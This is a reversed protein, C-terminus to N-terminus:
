RRSGQERNLERAARKLSRVMRDEAERNSYYFFVLILAHIWAPFVLLFVFFLNILFSWFGGAIWAALPPCVIALIWLM